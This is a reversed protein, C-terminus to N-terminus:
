FSAQQEALNRPSRENAYCPRLKRQMVPSFEGLMRKWVFQAIITLFASSGDSEWTRSLFIAYFILYATFKLIPDMIM